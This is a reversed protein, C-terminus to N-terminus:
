GILSYGKYKLMDKVPNTTEFNSSGYIDQLLSWEFLGGRYVYVDSFGLGILQKRKKEVSEDQSNKGYLIIKYSESSSALIRNMTEEEKEIPITNKILCSQESSPLTNIIIFKNPHNIAHLVDEFCILKTPVKFLDAFFM